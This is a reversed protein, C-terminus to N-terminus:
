QGDGGRWSGDCSECARLCRAPLSLARCKVVDVSLWREPVVAEVPMKAIGDCDLQAM